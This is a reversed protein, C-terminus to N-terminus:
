DCDKYVEWLVLNRNGKVNDPLYSRVSLKRNIIVWFLNWNTQVWFSIPHPISWCVWITCLPTLRESSRHYFNWEPYIRIETIIYTHTYVYPLVYSVYIYIIICIYINKNWCNSSFLFFHFNPLDMINEALRVGTSM